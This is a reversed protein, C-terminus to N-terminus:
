GRAPAQKMGFWGGILAILAGLILYGTTRFEGSQFFYGSFIYGKIMFGFVVLSWVFFLAPVMRRVALVVTALGVLAGGLLCYTLTSGEWPLMNFKLTHMGTSLAMLSVALLFLALVGHYLYGFFRM